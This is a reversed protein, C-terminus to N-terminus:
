LFRHRLDRKRQFIYFFMGGFAYVVVDMVDATYRKSYSPAFWEFVLSVMLWATFVMTPTLKFTPIKKVRRIWLLLYSLMLPLCLADAFYSSFWQPVTIQSFKFV